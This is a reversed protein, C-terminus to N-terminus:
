VAPVQYKAHMHSVRANSQFEYALTRTVRTLVQTLDVADTESLSKTLEKSLAQVFWSGLQSNRWSSYGVCVSLQITYFDV